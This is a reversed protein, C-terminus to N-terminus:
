IVWPAQPAGSDGFVAQGAVHDEDQVHHNWSSHPAIVPNSLMHLENLMSVLTQM